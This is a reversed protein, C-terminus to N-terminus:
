FTSPQAIGRVLAMTGTQLDTCGISIWRQDLGEISRLKDVINGLQVGLAKVENMLDIDLQSLKRYGKIKSHQNEM